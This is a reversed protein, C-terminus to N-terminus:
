AAGRRKRRHRDFAILGACAAAILLLTGPEPTVLVFTYTVGSLPQGSTNFFGNWGLDNASGSVSVNPGEAYASASLSLTLLEPIGFVFPVSNWPCYPPVGEGSVYLSCGSMSASASAVAEGGYSGGSVSLAPDGFGAGTGGSVTLMFEWTCSASASIYSGGSGTWVAAFADSPTCATDSGGSSVPDVTGAFIPISTLLLSVLIRM